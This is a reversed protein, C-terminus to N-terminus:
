GAFAYILIFDMIVPIAAAAMASVMPLQLATEAIRWHMVLRLGQYLLVMFSLGELNTLGAAFLLFMTTQILLLFLVAWNHLILWSAYHHRVGMLISVPIAIVPFVLWIRLYTFITGMWSFPEVEAGQAAATSSVYEASAVLLAFAPLALLMAGFSRAVGGSSIDFFPRWDDRFMLIKFVGYLANRAEFLLPIM